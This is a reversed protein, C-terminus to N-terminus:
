HESHNGAGNKSSKTMKDIKSEIEKEIMRILKEATLLLSVGPLNIRDDLPLEFKELEDLKKLM